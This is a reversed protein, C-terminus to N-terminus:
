RVVVGEGCGLEVRTAPLQTTPAWGWRRLSCNQFKLTAPDCLASSLFELEYEQGGRGLESITTQPGLFNQLLGNSFPQHEASQTSSFLVIIM